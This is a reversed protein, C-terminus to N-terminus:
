NLLIISIENKDGFDLCRINQMRDDVWVTLIGDDIFCRVKSRSGCDVGFATLNVTLNWPKLELILDLSLEATTNKSSLDYRFNTSLDAEYLKKGRSNAQIHQCLASM